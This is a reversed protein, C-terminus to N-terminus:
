NEGQTAPSGDWLITIALSNRSNPNARWAGRIGRARALYASQRKKATGRPVQNTNELHRWIIFDRYGVRGFGVGEYVLKAVGDESFELTDADYGHKNANNRAEMLYQKPSMGIGDLYNKFETM